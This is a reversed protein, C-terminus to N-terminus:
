FHFCTSNMGANNMHWALYRYVGDIDADNAPFEVYEEQKVQKSKKFPWM